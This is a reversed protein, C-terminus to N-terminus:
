HHQDIKGMIKEATQISREGEIPLFEQQMVENVKM